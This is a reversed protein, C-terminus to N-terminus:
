DMFEQIEVNLIGLDNSLLLFLWDFDLSHVCKYFGSVHFAKMSSVDHGLTWLSTVNLHKRQHLCELFIQTYDSLRKQKDQGPDSKCTTYTEVEVEKLSTPPELWSWFSFGFEVQWCTFSSEDNAYYPVKFVGQCLYYFHTLKGSCPPPSCRQQTHASYALSAFNGGPNTVRCSCSSIKYNHSQREVHPTEVLVARM